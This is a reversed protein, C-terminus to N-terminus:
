RRRARADALQARLVSLARRQDDITMDRKVGEIVERWAPAEDGLEDLAIQVDAPAREPIDGYGALALMVGANNELASALARLIWDEPKQSYGKEVNRVTSYHLGSERALEATTWGRAERRRIVHNGLQTPAPEKRPM